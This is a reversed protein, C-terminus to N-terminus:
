QFLFYNNRWETVIYGNSYKIKGNYNDQIKEFDDEAYNRNKDYM